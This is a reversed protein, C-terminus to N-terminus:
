KVIHWLHLTQPQIEFLINTAERFAPHEQNRFGLNRALWRVDSEDLRERRLPPVDMTALIERLRELFNM